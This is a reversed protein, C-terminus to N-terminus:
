SALSRTDIVSLIHKEYWEALLADFRALIASDELCMIYEHCNCM